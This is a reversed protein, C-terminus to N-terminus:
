TSTRSATLYEDVAAYQGSLGLNRRVERPNSLVDIGAVEATGSDPQQAPDHPHARHDDQRRRQPRPSGPRLRHARHHRRRRARHRRRVEQGSRSGPDCTISDHSPAYHAQRRFADDSPRYFYNFISSARLISTGVLGFSYEHGGYCNSVPGDQRAHDCRRGLVLVACRDAHRGGRAAELALTGPGDRM